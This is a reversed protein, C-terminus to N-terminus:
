PRLISGWVVRFAEIEDYLTKGAQISVHMNLKLASPDVVAGDELFRTDPRLIVGRDGTRTHLAIAGPVIRFIMGTVAFSSRVAQIAASPGREIAREASDSFGGRHPYRLVRSHKRV